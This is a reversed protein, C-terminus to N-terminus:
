RWGGVARRIGVEAGEEWSMKMRIWGTRAKRQSAEQETMQGQGAGRGAGKKEKEEEEEEAIGATSNRFCGTM